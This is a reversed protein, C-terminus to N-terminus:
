LLPTTGGGELTWIKNGFDRDPCINGLPGHNNQIHEKLWNLQGEAIPKYPECVNPENGGMFGYTQYNSRIWHLKPFEHM